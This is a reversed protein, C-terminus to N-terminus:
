WPGVHVTMDLYTDGDCTDASSTGISTVMNAARLTCAKM